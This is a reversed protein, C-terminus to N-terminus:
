KPKSEIIRLPYAAKAAAQEAESLEDYSQNFKEIAATEWLEAYCSKVQNFAALYTVYATMKEGQLHIGIGQAIKPNLQACLMELSTSEGELLIDGRSNVLLVVVNATDTSSFGKELFAEVKRLDETDSFLYLYQLLMMNWLESDAYGPQWFRLVIEATKRRVNSYDISNCMECSLHDLEQFMRYAPHVAPQSKYTQMQVCYRITSLGAYELLVNEITRLGSTRGQTAVLEIQRIKSDKRPDILGNKLFDAELEAVIGASSLGISAYNAQICQCIDREIDQAYGCAAPLLLLVLYKVNM